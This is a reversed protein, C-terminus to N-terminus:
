CVGITVPPYGDSRVGLSSVGILQVARREARAWTLVADTRTRTKATAKAATANAAADHASWSEPAAGAAPTSVVSPGGSRGSNGPVRRIPVGLSAALM